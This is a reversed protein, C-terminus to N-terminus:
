SLKRLLQRVKAADASSLVDARVHETGIANAEAEEFNKRQDYRSIVMSFGLVIVFGLLILTATPVVNIDKREYRRVPRLKRRYLNALCASISQTLFALAFIVLPYRSHIKCRPRADPMGGSAELRPARTEMLTAKGHM